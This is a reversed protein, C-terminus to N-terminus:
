LVWVNVGSAEGLRTQRVLPGRDEVILSSSVNSCQELLVCWCSWCNALRYGLAPHSLSVAKAVGGGRALHSLSVAKAAGGGGGGLRFFFCGPGWAWGGLQVSGIIIFYM